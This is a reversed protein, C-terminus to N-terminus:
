TKRGSESDSIIKLLGFDRLTETPSTERKWHAILFASVMTQSTLPVVLMWFNVPFIACLMTSEMIGWFVVELSLIGVSLM